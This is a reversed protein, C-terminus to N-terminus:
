IGNALQIECIGIAQTHVGQICGVGVLVLM